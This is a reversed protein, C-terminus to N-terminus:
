PMRVQRLVQYEIPVHEPEKVEEEGKEKKKKTAEKKAEMPDVNGEKAVEQGVLEM